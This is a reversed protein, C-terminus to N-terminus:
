NGRFLCGVKPNHGNPVLGCFGGYEGTTYLIVSELLDGSFKYEIREESVPLMLPVMIIVAPVLGVWNKSNLEYIWIDGNTYTPTGKEKILQSKTMVPKTALVESKPTIVMLGACGFLFLSFGVVAFKYLIKMPEYRRSLLSALLQSFNNLFSVGAM